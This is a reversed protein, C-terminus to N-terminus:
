NEYFEENVLYKYAKILHHFMDWTIPPGAVQQGKVTMMISVDLIPFYIQWRVFVLSVVVYPNQRVMDDANRFLRFLNELVGVFLKNNKDIKAM